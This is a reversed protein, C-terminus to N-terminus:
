AISLPATLHPDLAGRHESCSWRASPIGWFIDGPSRRQPAFKTSNRFTNLNPVLVCRRTDDPYIRLALLYSFHRAKLPDERPISGQVLRGSLLPSSFMHPPLRSQFDVAPM